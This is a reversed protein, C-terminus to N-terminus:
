VPAAAGADVGGVVVLSYLRGVLVVPLLGTIAV